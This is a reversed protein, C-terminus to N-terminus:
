SLRACGRQFPSRGFRAYWPVRPQYAARDGNACPHGSETRCHYAAGARIMGGAVWSQSRVIALGANYLEAVLYEACLRCLLLDATRPLRAACAIATRLTEVVEGDPVVPQPEFFLSGQVM